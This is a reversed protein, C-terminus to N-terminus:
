NLRFKDVRSKLNNFEDQTPTDAKLDNLQRKVDKMDTKVETVDEAVKQLEKKTAYDKLLEDIGNLITECIAVTQEKLAEKLKKDLSENTLYAKPENLKM